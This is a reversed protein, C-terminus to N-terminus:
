AADTIGLRDKMWRSLGADADALAADLTAYSRRGKWVVGGEDLLRVFSRTQGCHGIEVTGCERVWRWLHPHSVPEISKTIKGSVAEAQVRPLVVDAGSARLPAMWEDMTTLVVLRVPCTAKTSRVALVAPQLLTSPQTPALCNAHLIALYAWIFFLLTFGLGNNSSWIEAPGSLIPFRTGSRHFVDCISM